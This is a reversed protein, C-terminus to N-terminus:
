PASGSTHFSPAQTSARGSNASGDAAWSQTVAVSAASSPAAPSPAMTVAAPQGDALLWKTLASVATFVVGILTAQVMLVAAGPFLALLVGAAVCVTLWFAATRAIRTYLWVLGVILATLGAALVIWVARVMEVRARAPATFATYVYQNSSPAPAPAKAAATWRELDEQVQTPQRGWRWGSWGIRYDESFGAPAGLPVYQPPVILQWVMPATTASGSITPFSASVDQWSELGQASRRRLEVTFRRTGEGAPLEIVQSGGAGKRITSAAGNVLVELRQPEYDDPLALEIQRGDTRLRYVLRDQREDGSFWTQAWFAEVRMDKPAQAGVAELRLSLQKVPKSSTAVVAAGDTPVEVSAPAAEDAAAIRWLDSDVGSWLALRRGGMPSSVMVRSEAPQDPMGLPIVIPSKGGQQGPTLPIATRLGISAKGELPQPLRIVLRLAAEGDDPALAKGPLVEVATSPLPTGDLTLELGENSLLESSVTMSLETAPQYLVEYELRQESKVVSDTLRASVVSRVNITQERESVDVVLRPKPLFTQLSLTSSDLTESETASMPKGAGNKASPTALSVGVCKDIQATARWAEDAAVTLEGPLVFADLVEPLPLDHFGLGAERRLSFKLRVQQVNSDKLPMILVQESTVHQETLDVAGGSEIPQETLEWGHLDVRLDFTRGGVIQYDLAVDLRAGQSGLLMSYTPAVRVKRQRPQTHIELAWNTGSAAFAALASRARLAEPLTNPEVQEVRGHCEFHAHLQDSMRVALASKQRFAGVVELPQVRLATAAAGEAAQQQVLLRVTPPKASPKHFRVEALASGGDGKPSIMTVDYASGDPPTSASTGQPLKVQFGEIPRGFGQVLIMAEYSVRDPEVSVTIDSSAEFTDAAQNQQEGRAGWSLTLAGKAGEIHSITDGNEGSTTTILPSSPSATEIAASATVDFSSKAAAPLDLELRRQEGDRGIVFQGTLLITRKEGPKGKLWATYAKRAVNFSVFDRQGGEVKSSDLIITGLGLPVEIWEASQLEVSVTLEAKAVDRAAKLAGAFESINYKPEPSEDHLAGEGQWAKLFDEYRYGL